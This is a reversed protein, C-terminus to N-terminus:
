LDMDVSGMVLEEPFFSNLIDLFNAEYESMFEIDNLSTKQEDIFTKTYQGAKICDEWDVNIIKYGAKTDFCSTYFHNKTLPTGIKIIQGKPKSAIMPIIVTNVIQDKMVGAEEIICIDCTFGRITRGDNGSPLSIIRSGNAFKMESETMKTILSLIRPNNNAMDRIKGYLENSQTQTPAVIVITIEDTVCRYIAYSAVIFSKGSQRCWKGAVRLHTMCALLFNEQYFHPKFRLYFDCFDIIEKIDVEREM